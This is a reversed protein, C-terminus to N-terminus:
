PTRLQLLGAPAGFEDPWAAYAVDTPGVVFERVMWRGDKQELLAYVDPGDFIGERVREAHRTKRFDIAGGARTQPVVHAFAWRDQRRLTRVVFQVKQGLDREIAPRLADLLVRRQPDAVGIDSARALAAMVMMTAIM